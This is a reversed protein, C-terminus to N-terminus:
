VIVVVSAIQAIQFNPLVKVQELLELHAVLLLPHDPLVIFVLHAFQQIQLLKVV